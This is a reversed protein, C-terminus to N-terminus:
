KAVPPAPGDAESAVGLRVRFDRMSALTVLTGALGGGNEKVKSVMEAACTSEIDVEVGTSFELWNKVYCQDVDTSTALIAALEDPGSFPADSHPSRVIEGSADVPHGQDTTRYTGDGDYNEFGFGIRDMLDHCGACDKNALTYSEYLSRTTAGETFEPVTVMIDNPPPPMTQCLLKERVVKGRHIPSSTSPTGLSAMLAGRTLLGGGTSSLDVKMWGDPDATAPDAKVGYYDALEANMMSWDAQLLDAIGLGNWYAEQVNRDFEDKMAQRITASFNPYLDTSKVVDMVRETPLWLGLFRSVAPAAREDVALREAEAAIQEETHLQGAAALAFLREDPMTGWFMYSLESAIEWDSLAFVNGEQRSGLETRYLFYPSALFGSILWQISRRFGDEVVIEDYFAMYTNLEGASLPRRYAKTGFETVFQLACDRTEDTCPVVDGWHKAVAGAALDEASVRFQDAQVAGITLTAANNDYGNVAGDGAFETTPWLGVLDRVTNAYEQQSLRRVLRAAPLTDDCVTETSEEPENSEGRPVPDRNEYGDPEVPNCAFLALLSIM